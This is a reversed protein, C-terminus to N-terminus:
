VVGFGIKRIGAAPKQSFLEALTYERKNGDPRALGAARTAAQAEALNLPRTHIIDFCRGPRILAPDVRGFDSINTTFVLKKTPLRVLGDSINLFRSMLKNQSDERAMLITDADEIVMINSNSGFLFDQFVSDSAMIKEDYVIDASLSFDCIMHRLLTTKGTGPPGALLMVSQESALYDAMLKQPAPIDPYFEQRLTSSLPDLFVTRKQNGHDSTYWWRIKAARVTGFREMLRTFVTQAADRSGTVYISYIAYEQPAELEEGPYRSVPQSNSVAIFVRDGGVKDEVIFQNSALGTAIGPGDVISAVEDVMMPLGVGKLTYEKMDTIAEGDMSALFKHRAIGVADSDDIIGADREWLKGM